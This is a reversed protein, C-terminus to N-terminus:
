DDDLSAAMKRLLTVLQAQEPASLNSTGRKTHKATLPWIDDFLKEGEATLSISVYRGDDPRPTRTVLGREILQDIIRSLTPQDITVHQVIENLSSNPRAQLVAIVRWQSITIVKRAKVDRIFGQNFKNAVRNVLYPIFDSIFYDGEPRTPAAHAAPAQKTMRPMSVAPDPITIGHM